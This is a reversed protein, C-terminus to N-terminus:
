SLHLVLLHWVELRPEGSCGLSVWEQGYGQVAGAAEVPPGQPDAAAAIDCCQAVNRSRRHRGATPNTCGRGVISKSEAGVDCEGTGAAWHIQPRVDSREISKPTPRPRDVGDRQHTGVQARAWLSMGPILGQRRM